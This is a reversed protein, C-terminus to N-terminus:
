GLLCAFLGLSQEVFVEVEVVAVHDVAVAFDDVNFLQM